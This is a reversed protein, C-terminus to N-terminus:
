GPWALVAKVRSSVEQVAAQTANTFHLDMSLFDVTQRKVTIALDVRTEVRRALISFDNPHLWRFKLERLIHQMKSLLVELPLRIDVCPQVLEGHFESQLMNSWEVDDQGVTPNDPPALAEDDPQKALDWVVDAPSDRTTLMHHFVKAMSAAPSEFARRLEEESFGIQSLVILEHPPLSRFDIPSSAVGLPLPTPLVYGPSVYGIRFAAHQKIQDLSIRTHPDVTIMASILNRVDPPFDPMVFQGSKVKALLTRVV